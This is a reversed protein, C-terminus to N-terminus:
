KQLLHNIYTKIANELPLAKKSLCNDKTEGCIQCREKGLIQEEPFLEAFIDDFM